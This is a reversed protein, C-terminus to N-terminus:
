KKKDDKKPLRKGAKSGLLQVKDNGSVEVVDGKSYLQAEKKGEVVVRTNRLLEIKEVEDFEKQDMALDGKTKNLNIIEAM